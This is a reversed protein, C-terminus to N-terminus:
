LTTWLAQLQRVSPAFCHVTLSWRSEPKCRLHGRVGRYRAQNESNAFLVMAVTLTLSMKQILVLHKGLVLM